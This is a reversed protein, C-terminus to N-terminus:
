YRLTNNIEVGGGEKASGGLHVKEKYDVLDEVSLLLLLM